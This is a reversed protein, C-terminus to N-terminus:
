KIKIGEIILNYNFFLNSKICFTSFGNLEFWMVLMNPTWHTMHPTRKTNVKHRWFLNIDIFFLLRIPLFCVNKTEVRFVGKPKLVRNVESFVHRPNGFHEISDRAIVLNFHNNPFPIDTIDLDQIIDAESYNKDIGVANPYIRNGCGIDLIKIANDETM